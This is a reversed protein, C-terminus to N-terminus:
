IVIKVEMDRQGEESGGVEKFIEDVAFLVCQYHAIDVVTVLFLLVVQSELLLSLELLEDDSDSQNILSRIGNDLLITLTGAQPCAPM